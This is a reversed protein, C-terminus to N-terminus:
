AVILEQWFTRTGDLVDEEGLYNMVVSVLYIAWYEIVNSCLRYLKKYLIEM